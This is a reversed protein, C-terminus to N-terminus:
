VLLYHRIAEKKNRLEAAKRALVIHYRVRLPLEDREMFYRYARYGAAAAVIGFVLKVAM